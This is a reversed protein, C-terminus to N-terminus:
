SAAIRGLITRTMPLRRALDPQGHVDINMAFIAIDEGREAWGVLWGLVSKGDRGVTGTKAHIAAGQARDVPVIDKVLDLNQKSAPLDDKYLRTLFRIQELPTIRLNGELWFRDIPAGGIDRNGYQFADVYHQMREEGIRRAIQQFVPVVSYKVASRLTHDRNWDDIDRPIGDWRIIENDADAVVGTELAILAHPIKFTSAPLEGRRARAEDTMILRDRRLELAAFVGQTNAEAFVQALDPQLDVSEARSPAVAFAANAALAALLTRRDIM